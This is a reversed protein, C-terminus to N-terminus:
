LNSHTCCVNEYNVALDAGAKKGEVRVLLVPIYRDGEAEYFKVTPYILEHFIDLPVIERGKYEVPENGIVGLDLLLMLKDVVGRIQYDERQINEGGREECLKLLSSPFGDYFADM